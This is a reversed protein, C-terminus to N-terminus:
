FWRRFNVQLSQAEPGDHDIDLGYTASLTARGPAQSSSVEFQIRDKGAHLLDAGDWRLRGLLWRTPRFVLSASAPLSAVLPRGTTKDLDLRADVFLRNEHSWSFVFDGSWADTAGTGDLPVSRSLSQLTSLRLSRGMLYAKIETSVGATRAALSRAASAATRIETNRIGRYVASVGISRDFSPRLVDRRYGFDLDLDLDPTARAFLDAGYERRDGALLGTAKDRGRELLANTKFSLGDWPDIRADALTRRFVTGLPDGWRDENYTHLGRVSLGPRLTWAVDTRLLGDSVDARARRDLTRNVEARQSAQFRESPAYSLDGRTSYRENEGTEVGGTLTRNADFDFAARGELAPVFRIRRVVDGRLRSSLQVVEPAGSALDRFATRNWDAVLRLGRWAAETAAYVQENRQDLRTRDAQDEGRSFNYRVTLPLFRRPTTRLNVDLTRRLIEPQDISSGRQERYNGSVQYTRDGQSFQLFPSLSEATGPFAGRRSTGAFDAGVQIRRTLRDRLRLDLTQTVETSGGPGFRAHRSVLTQDGSLYRGGAAPTAAALALAAAAVTSRAKRSRM